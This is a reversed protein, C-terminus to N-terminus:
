HPQEARWRHTSVGSLMLDAVLRTFDIRAARGSQVAWQAAAVLSYFAESLWAVPLESTFEGSRQGRRFLGHIMQDIEDWTPHMTASDSEQSQTYLLALYPAVHESAAVLRRVASACDGEELHAALVAAHLQEAAMVELAQLLEARGAFHRHLTARSVGVGKAIEDQTANPRRSLVDAAARLM